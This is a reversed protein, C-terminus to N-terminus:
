NNLPLLVQYFMAIVFYIWCVCKEIKINNVYIHLIVDSLYIMKGDCLCLNSVYFM